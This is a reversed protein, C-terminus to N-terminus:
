RVTSGASQLACRVCRVVDTPHDEAVVRVILWGMRELVELRQIDKVM